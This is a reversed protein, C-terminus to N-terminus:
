DDPLQAVEFHMGDPTPFLGGWRFGHREFIPVLERVSGRAGLQAPEDGQGNFDANIDLATGFAHNSPTHVAGGHKRRQLRANFSGEFSIIRDKLGQAEIEAFAATLQNFAKRFFKLQGHFVDGPADTRGDLVGQLQPILIKDINNPEFGDLLEIPAGSVENQARWRVRGVIPHDVVHIEAM